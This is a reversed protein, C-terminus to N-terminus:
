EGGNDNSFNESMINKRINFKISSLVSYILM